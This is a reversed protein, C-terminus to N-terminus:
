TEIDLSVVSLRPEYSAKRIKPNKATLYGEAFNFEGSVELTGQVFREMLYRDTPRIDAEYTPIHHNQLLTRALALDRQNRFYCAIAPEDTESFCRLELPASRWKLQTALVPKARPLSSAPIFFVSEQDPFEIRAPVENTALWYILSQGSDSDRWQSALILGQLTTSESRM